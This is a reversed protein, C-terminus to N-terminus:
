NFGGNDLCKQCLDDNNEAVIDDCYLCTIKVGNDLLYITMELIEGDYHLLLMLGNSRIWKHSSLEKIDYNQLKSM